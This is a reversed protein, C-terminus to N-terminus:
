IWGKERCEDSTYANGGSFYRYGEDYAASEDQDARNLPRFDDPPQKQGAPANRKKPAKSEPKQKPKRTNGPESKIDLGYASLKCGKKRYEATHDKLMHAHVARWGKEYEKGCIPCKM